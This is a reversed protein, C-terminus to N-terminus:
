DFLIKAMMGKDDHNVLHCHFVSMGRIFPDTLDMLVDVSGGVTV